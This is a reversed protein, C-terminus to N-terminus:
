RGLFTFCGTLFEKLLCTNHCYCYLTPMKLTLVYQLIIVKVSCRGSTEAMRLALSGCIKGEAKTIVILPMIICVACPRPTCHFSHRKAISIETLFRLLLPLLLPVPFPESSKRERERKQSGRQRFRNWIRAANQVNEHAASKANLNGVGLLRQIKLVELPEQKSSDSDRM